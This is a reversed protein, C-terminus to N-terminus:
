LFPLHVSQTRVHFDFPTYVKLSLVNYVAKKCLMFSEAYLIPIVFCNRSQFELHNYKM